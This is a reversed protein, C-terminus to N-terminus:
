DNHCFNSDIWDHARKVREELSKEQITMLEKLVEKYCNCVNSNILVDLLARRELSTETRTFNEYFESLVRDCYNCSRPPINDKIEMRFSESCWSLAIKDLIHTPIRNLTEVFLWNSVVDYMGAENLERLLTYPKVNVPFLVISDIGQMSVWNVTNIADNIQEQPSLFPAGVLINASACMGESHIVRITHSVSELEIPKNLSNELVFKDASELGFEIIIKKGSLFSSIKKLIECTVSKHHTEFIVTKVKTKKISELIIELNENPIEHQDLISGYTGLLVSSVGSLSPVVKQKMCQQMEETSINRGTGYNCM